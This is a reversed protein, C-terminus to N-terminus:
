PAPPLTLGSGKATGVNRRIDSAKATPTAVVFPKLVSCSSGELNRYNGRTQARRSASSDATADRANDRGVARHILTAAAVASKHSSGMEPSSSWKPHSLARDHVQFHNPM